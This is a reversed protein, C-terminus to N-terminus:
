PARLASHIEEVRKRTAQQYHVPNGEAKKEKLKEHINKRADELSVKRDSTLALTALHLHAIIDLKVANPRKPIESVVRDANMGIERRIQGPNMGAAEKEYASPAKAPNGRALDAATASHVFAETLRKPGLADKKQALGGACLMALILLVFTTPTKM